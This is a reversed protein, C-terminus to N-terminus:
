RWDSAPDGPAGPGGPGQPASPPMSGVQGESPGSVSAYESAYESRVAGRRVALRLATIAAFVLLAIGALNVLGILVQGIIIGSRGPAAMGMLPPMLIGFLRALLLTGIGGAVLGRTPGDTKLIGIVGVAILGLTLVLNVAGLVLGLWAVSM